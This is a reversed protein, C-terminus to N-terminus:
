SVDAARVEKVVQDLENVLHSHKIGRADIMATPVGRENSPLGGTQAAYEFERPIGLATFYDDPEGTAPRVTFDNSGQPGMLRVGGVELENRKAEGGYVPHNDLM